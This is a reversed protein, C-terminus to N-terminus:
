EKVVSEVAHLRARLEQIEKVLMPVLKSYDVGWPTEIQENTDGATVAEPAVVALDQAIFGARNHIGSDNWDFQVVDISDIIDGFSGTPQINKKLRRDSSANFSTATLAGTITDGAKNVPTYGLTTIVDSSLAISLVGTATTSKLMGTALSATGDSYDFGEIASTISTGNGKMLGTVTTSLTIAPTTTSTAVTGAFGNASVVSANTVTGQISKWILIGNGDTTLVQDETGDVTPFRVNNLVLHQGGGVAPNIHLDQSDSTTILAPGSLGADVVLNKDVDLSIILDSNDPPTITGSQAITTGDKGVTFTSVSTGKANITVAM